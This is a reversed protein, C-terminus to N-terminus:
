ECRPYALADADDQVRACARPETCAASHARHSGSGPTNRLQQLAAQEEQLRLQLFLQQAMDGHRRLRAQELQLTASTQLNRNAQICVALSSEATALLLRADAARHATFGRETGGRRKRLAM